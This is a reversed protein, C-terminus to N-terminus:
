APSVSVVATANVYLGGGGRAGYWFTNIPSINRGPRPGRGCKRSSRHPLGELLTASRGSTKGGIPGSLPAHPRPLPPHPRMGQGGEGLPGSLPWGQWPPAWGKAWGFPMAKKSPRSSGATLFPWPRLPDAPLGPSSRPLGGACNQFPHPLGGPFSAESSVGTPANTPLFLFLTPSGFGKRKRGVHM